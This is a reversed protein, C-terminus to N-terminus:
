YCPDTLWSESPSTPSSAFLCLPLDPCAFSFSLPVKDHPRVLYNSPSDNPEYRQYYVPTGCRETEDLVWYHSYESSATSVLNEASCSDGLYYIPDTNDGGSIASTSASASSPEEYTRTDVSPGAVHSSSPSPLLPAPTPVFSTGHVMPDEYEKYGRVCGFELDPHQAALTSKRLKDAAWDALGSSSFLVLPKPPSDGHKVRFM